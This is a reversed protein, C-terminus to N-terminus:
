VLSSAGLTSVYYRGNDDLNAGYRIINDNKTGNNVMSDPETHGSLSPSPGLSSGGGGLKTSYGSDNNSASDIQHISHDIHLNTVIPSLGCPQVSQISLTSSDIRDYNRKHFDMDSFKRNALLKERQPRTIYDIRNATSTSDVIDGSYTPQLNPIGITPPIPPPRHNFLINHNASIPLPNRSRANPNYIISSPQNPKIMPQHFEPQNDTIPRMKNKNPLEHFYADKPILCRTDIFRSEPVQNQPLPQVIQRYLQPNIVHQSSLRNEYNPQIPSPKQNGYNKNFSQNVYMGNSISSSSNNMKNIQVAVIDSEQQNEDESSESHQEQEMITVSSIKNGQLKAMLENVKVRPPLAYIDSNKTDIEVKKNTESPIKEVEKNINPIDLDHVIQSPIQNPEQVNKRIGLQNRWHSGNLIRCKLENLQRTNAMESLLECPEDIDIVNPVQTNEPVIKGHKESKITNNNSSSQLDEFCTNQYFGCFGNTMVVNMSNDDDADEDEEDEDDDDNNLEDENDKRNIIGFSHDKSKNAFSPVNVSRYSSGSMASSHDREQEIASAREKQNEYEKAIEPSIAMSDNDAKLKEYDDVDCYGLLSSTIKEMEQAIFSSDAHGTHHSDMHLSTSKLQGILLDEEYVGSNKLKERTTKSKRREDNTKARALREMEIIESTKSLLEELRGAVSLRLENKVQRQRDKQGDASDSRDGRISSKEKESCSNRKSYDGSQSSHKSQGSYPLQDLSDNDLYNKSYKQKSHDSKFSAEDENRISIGDCDNEAHHVILKHTNLMDYSRAQTIPLASDNGINPRRKQDNELLELSKCRTLTNTNTEDKRSKSTHASVTARMRDNRNLWQELHLRQGDCRIRDALM